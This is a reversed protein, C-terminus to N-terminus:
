SKQLLSQDMKRDPGSPGDNFCVLSALFPIQKNKDIMTANVKVIKGPSMAESLTQHPPLLVHDSTFFCKWKREPIDQLVGSNTSLLQAVEFFHGFLKPPMEDSSESSGTASIPKEEEIQLCRPDIDPLRKGSIRLYEALKKNLNLELNEQFFYPSFDKSLGFTGPGGQLRFM